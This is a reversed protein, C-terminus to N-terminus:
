AEQARDKSRRNAARGAEFGLHVLLGLGALSGLLYPVWRLPNEVVQLYSFTPGDAAYGLQYISFDGVRMPRNMEVSGEREVEGHVRVRSEFARPTNTGEYFRADFSLLEIDFPLIVQAPLAREAPLADLAQATSAVDYSVNSREGPALAIISESRFSGLALTITALILAGHVLWLGITRGRFPIRKISGVTLNVATLAFVLRGAPLPVPGVFLVWAHVFRTTMQQVSHDIQYVIGALVLAFLYGLLLSTTRRGGAANVLPRILRRVNSRM